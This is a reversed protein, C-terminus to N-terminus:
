VQQLSSKDFNRKTLAERQVTVLEFTYFQRFNSGSDIEYDIENYSNIQSAHGWVKRAPVHQTYKM